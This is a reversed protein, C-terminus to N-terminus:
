QGNDIVCISHAIVYNSKTLSVFAHVPTMSRHDIVRICANTDNVPTMSQTYVIMAYKRFMHIKSYMDYLNLSNILTEEYFNYLIHQLIDCLLM